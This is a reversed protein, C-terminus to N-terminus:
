DMMQLLLSKLSSLSVRGQDQVALQSIEASIDNSQQQAIALLTNLRELDLWEGASPLSDDEVFNLECLSLEIKESESDSDILSKVKLPLGQSRCIIPRSEYVTCNENVLFVCKPQECAGGQGERWLQALENRQASSRGKWWRLISEAEVPFVHLEVRCCKACGRACKMQAAYRMHFREFFSSVNAQLSDILQQNKGTTM